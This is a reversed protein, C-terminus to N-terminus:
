KEIRYVYGTRRSPHVRLMHRSRVKHVLQAMLKLDAHLVPQVLGRRLADEQESKRETVWRVKRMRGAQFPASM